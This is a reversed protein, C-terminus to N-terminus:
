RRGGQSGGKDWNFRVTRQWRRDEDRRPDPAPAASRNTLNPSRPMNPPTAAPPKPKHKM